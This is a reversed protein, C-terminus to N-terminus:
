IIRCPEILLLILLFDIFHTQFQCIFDCHKERISLVERLKYRIAQLIPYSTFTLSKSIMPSSNSAESYFGKLELVLMFGKCIQIEMKKNNVCLINEKLIELKM